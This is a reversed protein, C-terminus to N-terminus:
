LRRIGCQADLYLHHAATRPTQDQVPPYIGPPLGGPLGPGCSGVWHVALRHLCGKHVIFDHLQTEWFVATGVPPDYVMGGGEKEGGGGAKHGHEKHQRM